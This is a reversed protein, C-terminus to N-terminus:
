KGCIVLLQLTAAAPAGVKTWEITLDTTDAGTIAALQRGRADAHLVLSPDIGSAVSPGSYVCSSAGTAANWEGTSSSGEGAGGSKMIIQVWSPPAGLGHFYSVSASDATAARTATFHARSAPAGAPKTTGKSGASPTVGSPRAAPPPAVVDVKPRVPPASTSIVPGAALEHAEMPPYTRTWSVPANCRSCNPLQEGVALVISHTKHDCNPNYIGSTQCIEGTTFM